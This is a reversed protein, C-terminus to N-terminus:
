FKRSRDPYFLFCIEDQDEYMM